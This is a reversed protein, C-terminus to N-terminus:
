AIVKKRLSRSRLEFFLNTKVKRMILKQSYGKLSDFQVQSM